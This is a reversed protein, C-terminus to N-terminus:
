LSYSVSAFGNGALLADESKISLVFLQLYSLFTLSRLFDDNFILFDCSKSGWLLGLLVSNCQFETAWVNAM